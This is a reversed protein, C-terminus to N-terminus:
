RELFGLVRALLARLARTSAALAPAPVSETAVGRGRDRRAL